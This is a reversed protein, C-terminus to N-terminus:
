SLKKQFISSFYFASLFCSLLGCFGAIIISISAYEIFPVRPFFVAFSNGQSSFLSLKKSAIEIGSPLTSALPSIILLCLGTVVSFHVFAEVRENWLEYSRFISYAFLSFIAEGISLFKHSSFMASFVQGFSASASLSLELSLTLISFSVSLLSLALFAIKQPIYVRLIPLAAAFCAPVIALNIINSGWAGVGGNVYLVSQISVVMAMSLLGFAPGMLASLFFGGMFHASTAGPVPYNLMQAAFVFASLAAFKSRIPVQSSNKALISAIIMSGLSVLATVICVKGSLMTSPVYM